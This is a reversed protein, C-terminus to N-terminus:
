KFENMQEKLEESQKIEALIQQTYKMILFRIDPTFKKRIVESPLWGLQKSIRFYVEGYLSNAIQFFNRM